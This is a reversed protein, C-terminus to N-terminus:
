GPKVWVRAVANKRKGTAYSRGLADKKPEAVVAGEPAPALEPSVIDKLDELTKVDEAM